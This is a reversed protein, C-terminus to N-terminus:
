MKLDSLNIIIPMIYVLLLVGFSGGLFVGYVIDSLRDNKESIVTRYKLFLILLVIGILSIGGGVYLGKPILSIELTGSDSTDIAIFGDLAKTYAVKEGNLTVRLGENHPISIFYSGKQIEGTIKGRTYSLSGSQTNKIATAVATNDVSYVGFSTCQVNKLVEITINVSANEFSGLRLLGNQSQTPYSVTLLEGNVYIKLSNNIPETLQTSFGNYCDFYLTTPDSCAVRYYIKGNVEATNEVYYGSQTTYIKCNETKGADAQKVPSECDTISAFAEGVSLIRDNQSLEQPIKGVAKIGLGLFYPNEKIGEGDVIYGVSLLADSLISGGWNGTEMWYGSYGLNKAATMFSESNLSTYHSISNFGAAGMNNAHTVKHTAGLRWFGERATNEKLELMQTYGDYDFKEKASLMYIKANCLGETAIILCFIVAVARYSLLRKKFFLLTLGFSLAFVTFLVLTGRISSRNGWLTNVYSSLSSLNEGTFKLAFLLLPLIVPFISLGKLRVPCDGNGGKLLKAGLLLATFIPMYGYRAPFSMYSGTHWMLNIPELVLPICSLALTYLLLRCEKDLTKFNIISWLFIVGLIGSSLLIVLTTDTSAFLEAERLEAIVGSGRGSSFYQFLAPLWIVATVLLATVGSLGLNLYIKRNKKLNLLAYIGFFFIVFLFVMFSIYFNLFVSLILCVTLLAPRNERLLTFAGLITLPFLYVMDLWMLNQYFLMGYGSFAYTCGLCVAFGIKLDKELKKLSYACTFAGLSLKLLVLINMLYPIDTKNYLLVLLNLPSTLYFLFVGYFSMGGANATNLLMSSNGQLIDKYDCFVPIVQQSMDCWAVTGVGFPYMGGAWFGFLLIGLTVAFSLAGGKFPRNETLKM